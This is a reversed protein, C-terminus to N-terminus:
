EGLDAGHSTRLPRWAYGLEPRIGDGSDADRERARRGLLSGIVSFRGDWTGEAAMRERLEAGPVRREYEDIV